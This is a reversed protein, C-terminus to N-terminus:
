KNIEEVWSKYVQEAQSTLQVLEELSHDNLKQHFKGYKLVWAYFKEQSYGMKTVFLSYIKRRMKNEPSNQWSGQGGQPSQNDGVTEGNAYNNLWAIFAIYQRDTLERLSEYAPKRVM